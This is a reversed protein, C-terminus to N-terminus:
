GVTGTDALVKELTPNQIPAVVSAGTPNTLTITHNTLSLIDEILKECLPIDLVIVNSLTLLTDAHAPFLKAAISFGTAIADAPSKKTAIDSVSSGLMNLVALSAASDSTIASSIVNINSAHQPLLKAGLGLLMEVNSIIPPAVTAVTNLFSFFSLIATFM